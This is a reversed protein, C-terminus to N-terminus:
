IVVIGEMTVLDIKDKKSFQLHLFYGDYVYKDWNPTTGYIISYDGGGMITPTGLLGRTNERSHSFKLNFPLADKFMKAGSHNESYLHVAWISRDPKLTLDIGLEPNFLSYGDVEEQLVITDFYKSYVLADQIESINKNKWDKFDM